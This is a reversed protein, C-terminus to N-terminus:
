IGLVTLLYNEDWGAKKRKSKVGLKCTKEQRLLNLAIKSLLSFNQAAHGARKRSADEGFSVDLIWHLKNEVAWHSRIIKQFDKAQAGLSSIYYRTAHEKQGTKKIERTSEMRVVTKLGEWKDPQSIHGLRNLVTCVRTEIRGHGYDISIDQQPNHAFTFQDIIDQYLSPQNGKVALVYEAQAGKIKTAIDEQCGMADITVTCGEIALKALLEPIATIENSKESTKIQGLVINNECAWASVMHIPSKGNVKAGRITKGDIAVVEGKTPHLLTAVWNGFAAEFVDPDLIGFVRNFTDHSPIGNPLELFTVLWKRKSKGYDQIENWSDAGGLVACIAIAVIDVLNHMKRRNIRPDEMDAFFDILRKNNEM